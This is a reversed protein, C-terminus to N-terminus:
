PPAIDPACPHRPLRTGSRLGSTVTAHVERGTLGSSLGAGVLADRVPEDNLHGAGVLQGLSFAARNLTHNRIGPTASRVRALEADLAARAWPGADALRAPSPPTPHAPERAREIVWDPLPALPGKTVWQYVHGSAHESPPTLIYGGDGRIDIGPGLRGASNRVPEGPHIFWYHRGGGGTLAARTPPLRGHRRQLEHLSHLGGPQRDVDLVVIGSVAGTRVAVNANPWRQWWRAIIPVTTTADHVGRQTRPHKAPSACDPQRCSCRGPGPDHCPLVAWGRAAYALAADLPSSTM